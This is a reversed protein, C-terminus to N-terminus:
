RAVAARVRAVADPPLQPHEGLEVAGFKAAGVDIATLEPNGSVQLRMAHTLRPMSIGRLAANDAVVIAGGVSALRSLLLEGLQSRRVVLDGTVSSLRGLSGLRLDGRIELSRVETCGAIAAVDSQEALVIDGGCTPAAREPHVTV